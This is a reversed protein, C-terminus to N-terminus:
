IFTSRCSGLHPQYNEVLEKSTTLANSIDKLRNNAGGISGSPTQPVIVEMFSGNSLSDFARANEDTSRLRQAISPTRRQHGKGSRDMRESITPSHSPDSLHPPLSGSGSHLGSGSRTKERKLMMKSSGNRRQQQMLELNSESMKPSPMENMGWLTAALKRASVPQTSKGSQSYRPSEITSRLPTTRWTPVPTSSRSGGLGIGLGVRNKGVLIARKNLRYNHIRSSSSSPSSCERKRTKTPVMLGEMLGRYSHRPM